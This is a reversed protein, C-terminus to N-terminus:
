MEKLLNILATKIDLASKNLNQINKMMTKTFQLEMKIM